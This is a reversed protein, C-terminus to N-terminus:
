GNHGWRVRKNKVVWVYPLDSPKGGFSERELERERERKREREREVGRGRRKREKAVNYM